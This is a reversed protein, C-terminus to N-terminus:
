SLQGDTSLESPLFAPENTLPTAEPVAVSAEVTVTYRTLMQETLTLHILLKGAVAPPLHLHAALAEAVVALALLVALAWPAVAVVDAVVVAVPLLLPAEQWAPFTPVSPFSRHLILSSRFFVFDLPELM